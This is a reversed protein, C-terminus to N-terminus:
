GNAKFQFLLFPFYIKPSISFFIYVDITFIYQNYIKASNTKSCYITIFYIKDSNKKKPPPPIYASFLNKDIERRHFFM